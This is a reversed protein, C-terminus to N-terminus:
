SYQRQFVSKEVGPDDFEKPYRGDLAFKIRGPFRGRDDMVGRITVLGSPFSKKRAPDAPPLRIM